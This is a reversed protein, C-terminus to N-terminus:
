SMFTIQAKSMEPSILDLAFINSCISSVSDDINSNQVFIHNVWLLDNMLESISICLLSTSLHIQIDRYKKLACIMILM